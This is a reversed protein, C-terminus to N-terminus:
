PLPDGEAISNLWLTVLDGPTFMNLDRSPIRALTAAELLPLEDKSLASLEGESFLALEDTLDGDM